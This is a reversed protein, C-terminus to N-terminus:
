ALEIRYRWRITTPPAGATRQPALCIRQGPHEIRNGVSLDAAFEDQEDVSVRVGGIAAALEVFREAIANVTINEGAEWTVTLDGPEEKVRCAVDCTFTPQDVSAEVSLSWHSTGAMGVGLAALDGTPMEQQHLNQLPPSPPWAQQGTGEVTTLLCCERTGSILWLAQQYRDGNWTFDIRLRQNDCAGTLLSNVTM